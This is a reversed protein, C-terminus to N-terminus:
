QAVVEGRSIETGQISAPYTSYYMAKAVETNDTYLVKEGKGNEVKWVFVQPLGSSSYPMAWVVNEPNIEQFLARVTCSKETCSLGLRVSNHSKLRNLEAAELLVKENDRKLYVYGQDFGVKTGAGFNVFVDAYSPMAVVLFILAILKRHM